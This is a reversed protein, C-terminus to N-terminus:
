DRKNDTLTIILSVVVFYCLITVFTVDIYSMINVDFHRIKPPFLSKERHRKLGIFVDSKTVMRHENPVNIINIYRPFTLIQLFYPCLHLWHTLHSFHIVFQENKSTTRKGHSRRFAAWVSIFIAELDIQHRNSMSKLSVIM